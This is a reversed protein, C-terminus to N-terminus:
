SVAISHLDILRICQPCLRAHLFESCRPLISDIILAGLASLAFPLWLYGPYISVALLFSSPCVKKSSLHSLRIYLNAVVQAKWWKGPVSQLWIRHLWASACFPRTTDHRRPTPSLPQVNPWIHALQSKIRYWSSHELCKKM